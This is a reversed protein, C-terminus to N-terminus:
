LGCLFHPSYLLRSQVRYQITDRLYYLIIPQIFSMRLFYLSNDERQKPVGYFPYILLYKIFHNSSCFWEGYFSFEKLNMIMDNGRFVLQWPPTCHASRRKIKNISNLLSLDFLYHMLLIYM